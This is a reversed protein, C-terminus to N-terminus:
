GGEVREGAPKAGPRAERVGPGRAALGHEGLWRSHAAVRRAKWARFYEGTCERCLYRLGDRTQASRGFCELPRPKRCTACPKTRLTKM